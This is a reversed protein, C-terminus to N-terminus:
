GVAHRHRKRESAEMGSGTDTGENGLRCKRDQMESSENGLRCERARMGSGQEPGVTSGPWGHIAQGEGSFHFSEPYNLIKFM